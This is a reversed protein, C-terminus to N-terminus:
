SEDLMAQLEEISKSHLAEDQKSAIISMIKQKREKSEQEHLRAAAEATKVNFIYKVIAVQIDLIEDEKTKTTMLSEESAQKIQSNLAKFVTDLSKTNLDWLDEVSISGKFPFRLKNRVAFEFMKEM